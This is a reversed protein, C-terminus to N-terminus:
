FSFARGKVEKSDRHQDMEKSLELASGEVVELAGAGGCCVSILM